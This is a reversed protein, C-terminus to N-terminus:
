MRLFIHLCCKLPTSTVNKKREDLVDWNELDGILMPIWIINKLRYRFQEDFLVEKDVIGLFLYVVGLQLLLLRSKNATLSYCM